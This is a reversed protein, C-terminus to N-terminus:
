VVGKDRFVLSRQGKDLFLLEGGITTAFGKHGLTIQLLGTINSWFLRTSEQKWKDIGSVREGLHRVECPGKFHNDEGLM